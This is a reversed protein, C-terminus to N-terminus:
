KKIDLLKEIDKRSYVICGETIKIPKLIGKKCWNYLTSSSVPFIQKLDSMRLYTTENNIGTKSM